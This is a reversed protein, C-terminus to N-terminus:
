KELQESRPIQPAQALFRKNESYKKKSKSIRLGSNAM